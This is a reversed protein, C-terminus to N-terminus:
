QYASHNSENKTISSAKKTPSELFLRKVLYNSFKIGNKDIFKNILYSSFLIVVLTIMITMFASTYYSFSSNIKIFLYCGVSGIVALHICYMSFSIEGLFSMIKNSFFKQLSKSNLVAVMVFITGIMRYYLMLDLNGIQLLNYIFTVEKISNPYSGILIGVLLLLITVIPNSVKTLLGPNNNKIDSLMLGAIFLSYYPTFPSVFLTIAMIIGYIFFRKSHNGFLALISFILLSGYFEYRITWLALNYNNTGQFFVGFMAEKLASFFNPEISWLENWSPSLSIKSASDNYLLSLKMLFYGVFISFFIPPLLRFYRKLIGTVLVANDKYEFYKLSLVYGSLVFFLCVPFHGNFIVFLPTKNFLLETSSHSFEVEGGTAGPFFLGAFHNFVVILAALGRVGDLYRYKNTKRHLFLQQEMKGSLM